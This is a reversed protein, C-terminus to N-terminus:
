AVAAAKLGRRRLSDVVKAVVQEISISSSDIVEAGEAVTLPSDERTGDKRDRDAITDCHGQAARRQERVEPSADIYFKFPTNPFVVSGIDRGEMVVSNTRAMKRQAAVLIRRVEPIGAITSVNRAVEEDSFFPSPDKGDIRIYSREDGLGCDVQAKEMLSIVKERACPPVGMQLIYWTVGRYMEGTNVYCFGLKKAVARAVSSKGSAAPGDIAIVCPEGSDRGM